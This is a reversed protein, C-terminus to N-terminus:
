RGGKREDGNVTLGNDTNTKRKSVKKARMKKLRDGIKAHEKGELFLNLFGNEDRRLTDKKM